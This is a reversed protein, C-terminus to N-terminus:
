RVYVMQRDTVIYSYPGSYPWVDWNSKHNYVRIASRRNYHFVLLQSYDLGSQDCGPDYRFIDFTYQVGDTNSRVNPSQTLEDPILTALTSPGWCDAGDVRSKSIYAKRESDDVTLIGTTMSDRLARWQRDGVAGHADPMLPDVFSFSERVNIANLILAWGGTIRDITTTQDCYIEFPEENPNPQVWYVGDDTRGADMHAACSSTILRTDNGDSSETSGTEIQANSSSANSTSTASNPAPILCSPCDNKAPVVVQGLNSEDGECDTYLLNGDVISYNRSDKLCAVESQLDLIHDALQNMERRLSELQVSTGQQASVLGVQLILLSSLRM